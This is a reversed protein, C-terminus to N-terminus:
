PMHKPPNKQKKLRRFYNDKSNDSQDTLDQLICVSSQTKERKEFSFLERSRFFYAFFKNVTEFRTKSNSSNTHLKYIKCKMHVYNNCNDRITANPQLQEPRSKDTSTSM